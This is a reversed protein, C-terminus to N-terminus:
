GLHRLFVVVSKGRGMAEVLKTSRGNADTLVAARLIDASGAQSVLDPAQPGDTPIDCPAASLAPILKRRADREVQWDSDAIVHRGSPTTFPRTVFAGSDKSAKASTIIVSIAATRFLKM